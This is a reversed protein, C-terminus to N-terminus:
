ISLGYEDPHAPYGFIEIDEQFHERVLEFSQKTYYSEWTKHASINNSPLSTNALDLLRCIKDFESGIQEYKGVYDVLCKGGDYFFGKQQKLNGNVRWRVYEDFSELSKIVGHQPHATNQMMYHYLSVQWDWPNRVFGFKYYGDFISDPLYRKLDVATVHSGFIRLGSYNCLRAVQCARSIYYFPKYEYKILAKRISTGAVKYNHVFIFRKKKSILM